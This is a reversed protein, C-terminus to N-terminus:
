KLLVMKRKDVFNNVKIKYFYMGSPLDKADFSYNYFGASQHTRVLTEILQGQANYLTLTVFGDEKVDYRIHTVPNFPNPYNQFLCYETPKLTGGDFAVGVYNFSIEVPVNETTRGSASGFQLSTNPGFTGLYIIALVGNSRLVADEGLAAGSIELTYGDTKNNFFAPEKWLSGKEVKFVRLDSGFTVPIHLGKVVDTNNELMIAAILQNNEMYTSLSLTISAITPKPLPKVESKDITNEYNM